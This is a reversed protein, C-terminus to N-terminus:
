SPMQFPMAAAPGLYEEWGRRAIVAKRLCNLNQGAM